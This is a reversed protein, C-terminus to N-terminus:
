KREAPLTSPLGRDGRHEMDTNERPERSMGTTMQEQSSPRVVGGQANTATGSKEPVTAGEGNGGGMQALALTSSMALAGALAITALKM